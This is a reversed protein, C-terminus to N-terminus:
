GQKVSAARHVQMTTYFLQLTSAWLHFKPSKNNLNKQISRYYMHVEYLHRHISNNSSCNLLIIISRNTQLAPQSWSSAMQHCCRQHQRHWQPSRDHVQDQIIEISKKKLIGSYWYKNDTKIKQLPLTLNTNKSCLNAAILLYITHQLRTLAKSYILPANSIMIIRVICGVFPDLIFNLKAIAQWINSAGLLTKLCYFISPKLYSITHKGRNESWTRSYHFPPLYVM